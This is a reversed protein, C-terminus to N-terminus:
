SRRFVGGEPPRDEAPRLRDHAFATEVHAAWGLLSEDRGRTAVLQIGLPMGALGDSAPLSLAPFGAYSWLATMSSDGTDRYGIPAVGGASPCVWCDIGAASADELLLGALEPGAERCERLREASIARGRRVAEATRPRYLHAFRDFWGGHVLAMEAHLLDGVRLGWDRLDEPTNWPV